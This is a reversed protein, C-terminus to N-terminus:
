TNPQQQQEARPSSGLFESSTWEPGSSPELLDGSPGPSWTQRLMRDAWRHHTAGLCPGQLSEREGMSTSVTYMRGAHNVFDSTQFPDRAALSLNDAPSYEKQLSRLCNRSSQNRAKGSDLLVWTGQGTSKEHGLCCHTKLEEESEPRGGREEM